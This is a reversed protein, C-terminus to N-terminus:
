AWPDEAAPKGRYYSAVMNFIFVLTGIGFITAGVTSLANLQGLDLGVPSPWWPLYDYYRRPMGAMGAFFMPFFLLNGGIYTLVFHWLGLTHSYWRRTIIPYYFYTAAFVGMLTGGLITYHFHAVVFYTQHILYDVPITGLMVGSLGGILFMTLFAIVFWMPMELRVRGGWITALWNFMKVGTPVAIAITTLMFIFRVNTQEGTTFMHHQWVVFGLIGISAISLAMATYGFLHKRVMKPLVTSILGFAPLILIYVEPHGFFWFLNQYLLPGGLPSGNVGYTLHTGFNRDSLVMTLAVSLSPMAAIVLFSNIFTAWVFIPMNWYSIGPARHKMVTVIFNIAGLMSSISLLHLGAIWIDIGHGPMLTTLPVYGTWGGNAGSLIILAGAPPIIWFALNNIRPMAMDRAGVMTPLLYNGWGAMLPMVVLFIMIIGHETFLTSYLDPSIGIVSPNEGIAPLFLDVRILMAYVGGIILFAFALAMYMLGIEKHDTTTLWHLVYRRFWYPVERTRALKQTTIARERFSVDLVHFLLAGGLVMLGLAFGLSSQLGVSALNGLTIIYGALLGEGALLLLIGALYYDLRRSIGTPVAEYSPYAIFGYFGLIAGLSFPAVGYLGYASQLNATVTIALGGSSPSPFPHGSTTNQYEQTMNVSLASSAVTTNLLFYQEPALGFEFGGASGTGVALLSGATLCRSDSCSYVELATDPPGGSWSINYEVTEALTYLNTIGLHSGGEMQTSPVGNPYAPNSGLLTFSWTQDQPLSILVGGVALLVISLLIASRIM